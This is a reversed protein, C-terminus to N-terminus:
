READLLARIYRLNKLLKKRNLRPANLEKELGDVELSIGDLVHKQHDALRELENESGKLLEEYDEQDCCFYNELYEQLYQRLEVGAYAEVADLVDKLEFPVLLEGDPLELVHPM